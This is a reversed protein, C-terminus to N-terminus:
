NVQKHKKGQLDNTINSGGGPRCYSLPVGMMRNESETRLLRKWRRAELIPNSVMSSM